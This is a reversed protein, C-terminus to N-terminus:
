PLNLLGEGLAKKGEYEALQRDDILCKDEELKKLEGVLQGRKAILHELAVIEQDMVYIERKLRKIKEKVKQGKVLIRKVETVVDIVKYNKKNRPHEKMAEDYIHTKEAESMQDNLEFDKEGVTFTMKKM